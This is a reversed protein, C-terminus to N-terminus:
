PRTADAEAPAEAAEAPAPPQAQAADRGGRFWRLLAYFPWLLLGSLAVAVWTVLSMFYGIFEMGTEPGVYARAAGALLLLTLLAFLAKGALFSSRHAV